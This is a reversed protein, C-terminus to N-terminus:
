TLYSVEFKKLQETVEGDDAYNIQNKDAAGISLDKEDIWNLMNLQQERFVTWYGLLDEYYNVDDKHVDRIALWTENLQILEDKIEQPVSDDNESEKIM